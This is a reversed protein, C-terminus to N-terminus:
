ANFEPLAQLRRVCNLFENLNNTGGNVIRRVKTWDAANAAAAIKRDFFYASFIAAATNPECAEDPNDVLNIGLLKGYRAYNVEGTIQVFGRGAYRAGDGDHLNGLKARHGYVKEHEADSGYEHVPRFTYATEVAITALAAVQSAKSGVGLSELCQQVLPWYQAVNQAPCRIARAIADTDM